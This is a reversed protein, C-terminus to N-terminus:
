QPVRGDKQVSYQKQERKQRSISPSPSIGNKENSGNLDSSSTSKPISNEESRKNIADDGLKFFQKLFNSNM